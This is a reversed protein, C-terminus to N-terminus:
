RGAVQGYRQKATQEDLLTLRPPGGDKLHSHDYALEWLRGDAPDHYLANRGEGRQVCVLQGAVLWEIRQWGADPTMGSGLDIWFGRLEEDAPKLRWDEQRIDMTKEEKGM